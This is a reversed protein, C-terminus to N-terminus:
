AARAGDSQHSGHGLHLIGAWWGDGTPRGHTRSPVAAGDAELQRERQERVRELEQAFRAGQADQLHLYSLESIMM